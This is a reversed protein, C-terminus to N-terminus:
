EDCAEAILLDYKLEEIEKLLDEILNYARACLASNDDSLQNMVREIQDKSPKM